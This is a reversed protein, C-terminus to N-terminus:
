TNSNISRNTQSHQMNKENLITEIMTKPKKLYHKFAVNRFYSKFAMKNERISIIELGQKRACGITSYFSRFLKNTTTNINTNSFTTISSIPSLTSSDSFCLEWTCIITFQIFQYQNNKIYDKLVNRVNDIELNQVIITNTIIDNM